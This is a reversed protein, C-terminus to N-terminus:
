IKISRLGEVFDETTDTSHRSSIAETETPNQGLARIVDGILAAPIKGDGRNDYLLFAEHFEAIQDESFSVGRTMKSMKRIETTTETTTKAPSQGNPRLSTLITLISNRLRCFLVFCFLRWQKWDRFSPSALIEHSTARREDCRRVGEDSSHGTLYRHVGTLGRWFSSM